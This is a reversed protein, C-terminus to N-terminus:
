PKWEQASVLPNSSDDPWAEKTVDGFRYLTPACDQAARPALNWAEYARKNSEHTGIEKWDNRFEIEWEGCCDGQCRAHKPKVHEGTVILRTPTKGCPCPKLDAM